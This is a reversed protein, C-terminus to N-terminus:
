LEFVFHANVGSKQNFRVLTQYILTNKYSLGAYLHAKVLPYNWFRLILKKLKHRFSVVLM